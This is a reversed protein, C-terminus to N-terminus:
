RLQLMWLRNCKQMRHKLIVVKCNRLHRKNAQKNKLGNPKETQAFSIALRLRRERRKLRWGLGGVADAARNAFRSRGGTGGCSAPHSAAFGAFLDSLTVRNTGLSRVSRIRKVRKLHLRRTQVKVETHMVDHSRPRQVAQYFDTVAGQTSSGTIEPILPPPIPVLFQGGLLNHSTQGKRQKSLSLRFAGM